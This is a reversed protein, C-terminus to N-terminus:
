VSGFRLAGASLSISLFLTLLTISCGSVLLQVERRVSQTEGKFAWAEGAIIIVRHTMLASPSKSWDSVTVCVCCAQTKNTKDRFLCIYLFLYPISWKDPRNTQKCGTEQEKQSPHLLWLVEMHFVNSLNTCWYFWVTHLFMCKHANEKALM